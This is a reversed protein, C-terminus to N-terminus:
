PSRRLPISFSCRTLSRWLWEFPGYRFSHLWKRSWYCQLIFYPVGCLVSLFPGMYRYLGLGYGYFLPVWLLAQTIYNSLSMRGYPALNGLLKGGRRTGHYLLIFAGVWFTMQTLNCYLSAVEVVPRRSLAPLSLKEALLTLPYVLAFSGIGILFLKRGFRLAREPEELVRSRGLLLGCLFLGGMQFCRGSEIMFWIRALQGTWLNTRCVDLFSGNAYVGELYGYIDWHHPRGPAFGDFLVRWVNVLDPIQLLLLVAIAAVIRTRVKYFFVLPLGMVALPLLIDGCYIVGHLFGFGALLVLRWLFRGRFSDGRKEAGDMILFFSLGFMMAFIAYAKGGFLFFASGTTAEDLAKIWPAPDKPYNMFDFHEVCHLLFLGLLASGRLADILDIRSRPQATSIPMPFPLEPWSSVFRVPLGILGLENM